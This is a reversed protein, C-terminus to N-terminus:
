EQKTKILELIKIISDSAIVEEPECSISFEEEIAMFLNIQGLSDWQEIDGIVSDRTILDTNFLDNAINIVKSEM